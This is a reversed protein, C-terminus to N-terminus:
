AILEIDPTSAETSSLLRHPEANHAAAVMNQYSKLQQKKIIKTIADM